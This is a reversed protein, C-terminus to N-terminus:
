RGGLVLVEIVESGSEMARAFKEDTAQAKELYGQVNSVTLWDGFNIDGSVYAKVIGMFAVPKVATPDADALSSNGIVSPNESVIGLVFADSKVAPKIKKDENLSVVQYVECPESMIFYEAYDAGNTLYSGSIDISGTAVAVPRNVGIGGKVELKSNPITTGICINGAKASVMKDEIGYYKAIRNKSLEPM